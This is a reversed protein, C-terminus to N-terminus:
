SKKRKLLYHYILNGGPSVAYDNIYEWGNEEMFNLADIMNNFIVAKGDSGKVLQSQFPKFKQGYDIDIVFQQDFPSENVGILQCYKIGLDNIDVDEVIVQGYTMTVAFTLISVIFIIKKM